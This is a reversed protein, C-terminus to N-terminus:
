DTETKGKTVEPHTERLHGVFTILRWPLSILISSVASVQTRM